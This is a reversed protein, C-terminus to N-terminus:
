RGIPVFKSQHMCVVDGASNKTRDSGEACQMQTIYEVKFRISVNYTQDVDECYGRATPAPSHWLILIEILRSLPIQSM